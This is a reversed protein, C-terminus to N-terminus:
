YEVPFTLAVQSIIADGYHTNQKLYQVLGDVRVDAWKGELGFLGLYIGTKFG